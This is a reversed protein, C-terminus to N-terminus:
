VEVIRFYDSDAVYSKPLYPGSGKVCPPIWIIQGRKHTYRPSRLHNFHGRVDFSFNFHRTEPNDSNYQQHSTRPNHLICEYYPNKGVGLLTPNKEPNTSKSSHIYPKIELNSANLFAPIKSLTEMILKNNDPHEDDTPSISNYVDRVLKYYNTGITVPNYVWFFHSFAKISNAFWREENGTYYCFFIAAYHEDYKEQFTRINKALEKEEDSAVMSAIAQIKEQTKPLEEKTKQWADDNSESLFTNKVKSELRQWQEMALESKVRVLMIAIINNGKRPNNIYVPFPIPKDFVLTLIDFPFRYTNLFEDETCLPGKIPPNSEILDVMLESDVLFVKSVALTENLLTDGYLKLATRNRELNDNAKIINLLTQECVDHYKRIDKFWEFANRTNRM